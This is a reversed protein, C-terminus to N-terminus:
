SVNADAQELRKPLGRLRFALVIMMMGFMLAFVGIVVVMALAGAGPNAVLVIGFIISILGSIVLAWEYSIEKRL